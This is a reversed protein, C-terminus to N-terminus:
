KPIRYFSNYTRGVTEVKQEKKLESIIPDIIGESWGTLKILKQRTMRENDRILALIKEKRQKKQEEWGLPPDDGEELVRYFSDLGTGGVTEVKQEKKL